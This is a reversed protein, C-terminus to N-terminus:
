STSISVGSTSKGAWGRPIVSCRQRAGAGAVLLAILLWDGAKVRSPVLTLLAAATGALVIYTVIFRVRQGKPLENFGRRYPGGRSERDAVAAAFGGLTALFLVMELIDTAQDM